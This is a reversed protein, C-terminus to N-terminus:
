KRKALVKTIGTKITSSTHECEKRSLSCRSLNEVTGRPLMLVEDVIGQLVWEDSANDFPLPNRLAPSTPEAGESDFVVTAAYFAPPYYPHDALRSQTLFLSTVSVDALYRGAEM